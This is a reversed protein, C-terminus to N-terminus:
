ITGTAIIYYYGFHSSAAHKLILVAGVTKINPQGGDTLRKITSKIREARNLMRHVLHVYKGLLPQAKQNM